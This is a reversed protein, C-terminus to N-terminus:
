RAHREKQGNRRVVKLRDCCTTPLKYQNCGIEYWHVAQDIRGAKEAVSGLEECALNRELSPKHSANCLKHLIALYEDQDGIFKCGAWNGDDCAIKWYRRAEEPKRYKLRNGVNLCSLADGANCKGIDRQISADRAQVDDILSDAWARWREYSTIPAQAAHSDMPDKALRFELQGEYPAAGTLVSDILTGRFGNWLSGSLYLSGSKEDLTGDFRDFRASSGSTATLGFVKPGERWLDIQDQYVREGGELESYFSGLFIIKPEHPRAQSPPAIPLLVLLLAIGALGSLHIPAPCPSRSEVM